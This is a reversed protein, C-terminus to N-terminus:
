PLRALEHLRFRALEGTQRDLRLCSFAESVQSSATQCIVQYAGSGKPDTAHAAALVPLRELDVLKGEGTSTNLRVCLVKAGEQHAIADCAVEYTAPQREVQERQSGCASGFLAQAACLASICFLKM